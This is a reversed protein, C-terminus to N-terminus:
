ALPEWRKDETGLARCVKYTKMISCSIWIMLEDATLEMFQTDSLLPMSFTCHHTGPVATYFQQVLDDNLRQASDKKDHLLLHRFIQLPCSFRARASSLGGGESLGLTDELLLPQLGAPCGCDEQQVRWWRLGSLEETWWRTKCWEWVLFCALLVATLLAMAPVCLCEGSRTFAAFRIEM